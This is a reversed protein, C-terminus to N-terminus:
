KPKHKCNDFHYRTLGSVGGTKGCHPCTTTQQKVGKKAASLNKRMHDPKPKGKSGKSINAKWQEREENTMKYYCPRGHMGNNEGRHIRREDKKWKAITEASHTKGWMGNKEGPHSSNEKVLRMVEDARDGHMEAFTMGKHPPAIGYMNNNEGRCNKNLYEEREEDTMLRYLFNNEGRYYRILHQQHEEDTLLHKWYPQEAYRALLSESIKARTEDTVVYNNYSRQLAENFKIRTEEPLEGPPIFKIAAIQRNYYKPTVGDDLKKRLVDEFIQKEVEAYTLSGKTKHLSEIIFRFNEKGKAAIAANIHASSSTYTKWNSEKRITKKNKRGAVVKRRIAFFQKKGIYEQKTTLDIIRYIFGFWENIDFETNFEWHGLDM